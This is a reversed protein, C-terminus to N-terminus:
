REVIMNDKWKSQRNFKKKGKKEARVPKNYGTSGYGTKSNQHLFWAGTLCAGSSISSPIFDSKDSLGPDLSQAGWPILRM